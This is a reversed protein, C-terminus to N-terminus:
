PHPEQTESRALHEGFVQRMMRILQGIVLGTSALALQIVLQEILPTEHVPDFWIPDNQGVLWLYCGMSGVTALWVLPLSARLGALAILVGFLFVLPSAPGSGLKAFATLLALDIATAGYKISGHFWRRSLGVLLALSLFLWVSCMYTANRHFLTEAETRNATALFSLLQLGYFSTVLIIRVLAVRVEGEYELRRGMVDWRANMSISNRNTM